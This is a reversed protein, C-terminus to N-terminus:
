QQFFLHTDLNEISITDTSFGILCCIWHLQQLIGLFHAARCFGEDNLATPKIRGNQHIFFLHNIFMNKFMVLLHPAM